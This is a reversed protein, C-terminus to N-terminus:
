EPVILNRLPHNTVTEIDAKFEIPIGGMLIKGAVYINRDLVKASVAESIDLVLENSGAGAITLSDYGASVVLSYKALEKEPQEYIYCAIGTATAVSFATGDENLLTITLTKNEGSYFAAM